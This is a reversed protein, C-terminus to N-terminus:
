RPDEWSTEKTATNYFYVRGSAPDTVEQWDSAGDDGCVSMKRPDTWSTEQTATNYFYVRGTGPDTVEQWDSGGSAAVAAAAPAAAASGGAAEGAGGGGGSGGGGGGGDEGGAAAPAAEKATARPSNRGVGRGGRGSGAVRASRAAGSGLPNSEREVARGSPAMSRRKTVGLSALGGAEVVPASTSPAGRAARLKDLGSKGKDRTLSALSALELKRNTEGHLHMTYRIAAVWLQAQRTPNIGGKCGLLTGEECRFQFTRPAQGRESSTFSWHGDQGAIVDKVSSILIKGKAASGEVASEKSTFYHIARNSESITLLVYRAQWNAMLGKKKKKRCAGELQVAMQKWVGTSAMKGPGPMDDPLVAPSLKALAQEADDHKGAVLLDKLTGKDKESIIGDKHMTAIDSLIVSSRRKPPM